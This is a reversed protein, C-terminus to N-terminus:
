YNLFDVIEIQKSRWKYGGIIREPHRIGKSINAPNEINCSAAAEDRGTYEQVVQLTEADLKEYITRVPNVHKPIYDIEPDAKRWLFDAFVIKKEIANKLPQTHDCSRGLSKLAQGMAAFVEIKNGDLDCKVVPCASKHRANSRSQVKKQKLEMEKDIKYRELEMYTAPAQIDLKQCMDSTIRHRQLLNQSNLEYHFGVEDRLEEYNDYATKLLLKYLETMTNFYSLENLQLYDKFHLVSLYEHRESVVCQRLSDRLINEIVTAQQHTNTQMAFVFFGNDDGYDRHRRKLNSAKGFKIVDKNLIIYGKDNVIENPKVRVNEEIAGRIYLWTEDYAMSNLSKVTFTHQRYLDLQQKQEAAEQRLREIEKKLINNAWQRFAKGIPKKSNYLIRMIGDRSIVNTERDGHMGYKIQVCGKETDDFDSITQRINKIDLVNAIENAIFWPAEPSGIITLEYQHNDFTFKDVLDLVEINSLNTM